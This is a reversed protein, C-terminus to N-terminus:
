PTGLDAGIARGVAALHREVSEDELYHSHGNIRGCAGCRCLPPVPDLLPVPDNREDGTDVPGGIPDTRRWFNRWRAHGAASAAPSLSDALGGHAAPFHDPFLTPYLHALPSGYTVYAMRARHEPPLMRLAVTAWVTGQSHASLVVRGAPGTLRLIRCQLEPIAREAYCPPALPHFWRPWLAGLDWIIGLTRRRASSRYSSAVLGVAAVPLLTVAWSAANRLWSLGGPVEPYAGLVEGGGIRWLYSGAALVLVVAVGASLPADVHRPLQALREARAIGVACGRDGACADPYRALVQAVSSEPLRLWWVAAAVGGLAAVAVGVAFLMALWDYSAPTFLVVAAPEAAAISADAPRGLVDALRLMGGGVVSGTMFISLAALVVPGCWRFHARRRGARRVRLGIAAALGALLLLQAAFVAEGTRSVGPLVQATRAYAPLRWAALCAAALVAAALALAARSRAGTRLLSAVAVALALAAGVAATVGLPSRDANQRALAVTALAVMGAVTALGAALHAGQERTVRPESDWTSPRLLIPGSSEALADPPTISEYRRATRRGLYWLVVLLLVPALAGLGLRRGPHSAFPGRTFPWLWWRGDVCRSQGGCQYAVLDLAATAAGAVLLITLSLCVLRVLLGEAGRRVPPPGGAPVDPHFQMWGAVNAFTFPLLLVWFARTAARATLGGWSYAEIRRGGRGGTRWFGATADGGVQTPMPDFLMTQPTTGGVGHVRLETVGEVTAYESEWPYGVTM